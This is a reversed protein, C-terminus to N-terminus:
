RVRAIQITAGSADMRLVVVSLHTAPDGFPQGIRREPGGDDTILYSHRDPLVEHILVVDQQLGQDWGTARHFEVTYYRDTRGFAFIKAMLYGSVNPEGLPALTITATEVSGSYIRAPPIWGLAERYVANLSPGSDGFLPLSRTFTKGPPASMSDYPDGYEIDPRRSWSHDLRYGHGMEQAAFSTTWVNSALDLVAYPKTVGNFTLMAPSGADGSDVFPMNFMVAIGYFNTSPNQFDSSAAAVCARVKDQRSLANLQALTEQMTFWGKVQSGVLTIAGYSMDRWYDFMGGLGSGDETFLNRFFTKDKPEEPHDSTKCLLVAWKTPGSIPVAAMKTDTLWQFSNRAKHHLKTDGGVVFVDMRGAGWSITAPSSGSAIIGGLNEYEWWRNGDWGKHYLGQDTGIVFVSVRSDGWATASPSSGDSIIGGLHELATPSPLWRTSEWAKHDLGQNQGIVFIDLRGLGKSVIAPSSGDRVAGGLPEFNAASPLWRNGDWAKHYLQRDDGIVAIDLRDLGWSTIAPSSGDRVIGGLPEYGTASPLWRNGSWAKHYLQRDDGVVVIDLRGPGWSTIAPSGGDRVLGGLPEYGTASPLWRNGDWAKHYLQRDDGIVVIDLRGPSWCTISPSSGNRILGGLPEYDTVSPLWRNGNWAKHYLRRDTGVVFIDLRNAGWSVTIPTGLIAGGLDEYPANPAAHTPVTAGALPIIVLLLAVALKETRM